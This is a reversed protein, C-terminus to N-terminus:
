LEGPDGLAFSIVAPTAALTAAFAHENLFPISHNVAFPRDTLQATRTLESKFDEVSILASALTGLGGANSVASVLEASTCAAMAAQIIPVDIGLFDCLPTRFM